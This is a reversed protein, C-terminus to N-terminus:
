NVRGNLIIYALSNVSNNFLGNVKMVAYLM